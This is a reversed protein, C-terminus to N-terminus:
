LSTFVTITQSTTFTQGKSDTVTLRVTYTGPLLYSHTASLGSSTSGDGFNWNYTYPQSGGSASATFTVTELPFPNSPTYTFSASLPPTTGTVTVTKQSTATQQPASSDKVTLTVTFTGTSAYSHAASSGTGTSGDGFTWGFTYPATGGSASATFTVVQGTQLSSPSYTFSSTLAPHTSSVTISQQSTATQQPSSSDKVTLAVTFSGASSYTHTVSAGAGTSGDGFSWSYSYPPAGGSASGTFSVPQGTQPSSPNYTFSATLPSPLPSTVTVTQQSTATQQPSGTDKANLIVNYSGPSPYTHTTTSGTGTSGDGFSWNFTYPSTGGSATATFTIQQGTQPSSPTYTFSAQLPSTSSGFFETMASAVGDNSTLSPLNWSTEITKLSSYHNYSASSKYGHKVVPGAWIAPIHGATRGEDWTIFLAAKQTQFVPSNLIRPVLNSLYTDGTTTSCGWMDNCDNPTLWMYNPATSTSGLDSLLASDGTGAPVVKACESPNSTIHSFYIFPNHIPMYQGMNYQYCNSPMNEMYGKWTLGAAEIKDVITPSTVGGQPFGACTSPPNNCGSWSTDYSNGSVLALYEPLSGHQSVEYYNTASGYNTALQNLYPASASGIIDAYNRNEMILVVVYNFPANAPITPAVQPARPSSLGAMTMPVLLISLALLIFVLLCKSRGTNPLRSIGSSKLPM